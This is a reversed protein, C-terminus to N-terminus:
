RQRSNPDVRFEAPNFLGPQTAMSIVEDATAVGYKVDSFWSGKGVQYKVKLTEPDVSNVKMFMDKIGPIPKKDFLKLGSLKNMIEVYEPDFDERAKELYEDMLTELRSCTENDFIEQDWVNYEIEYYIPPHNKFNKEIYSFMVDLLPADFEGRDLYMQVLNGWTIFYTNFCSSLRSSTWNEIGFPKLGHCFTEEMLEQAGKSTARDKGTCVIDDISDGMNPFFKDLLTPIESENDVNYKGNRFTILESVKPDIISLIEKLTKLAPQCLYGLTYGERWDDYSRDQCEYYFDYNGYYMRDYATADYEGDSGEVYTEKFFFKLFQELDDFHFILGNNTVEIINDYREDDSDKFEIDEINLKKKNLLLIKQFDDMEPIDNEVLLRKRM